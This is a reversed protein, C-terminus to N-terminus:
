LLWLNFSFRSLIASYTRHLRTGTLICSVSHKLAEFTHYSLSFRDLTHQTFSMGRETIIQSCAKVLILTELPNLRRESIDSDSLAVRSAPDAEFVVGLARADADDKPGPLNLTLHPLNDLRGSSRNPLTPRYKARSFGFLGDKEKEKDKGFGDPFNAATPSITPSVAEFKGELLSVDSLRPPDDSGDLKKRGFVKSLFSPM